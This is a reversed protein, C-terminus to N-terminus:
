VFVKKTSYLRPSRLNKTAIKTIKKTQHWRVTASGNEISLVSCSGQRRSDRRYLTLGPKPAPLLTLKFMPIKKRGSPVAGCPTDSTPTSTPGCFNRCATRFEIQNLSYQRATDAISLIQELQSSIEDSPRKENLDFVVYKLAHLDEPIKKKLGALIPPPLPVETVGMGISKWLSVKMQFAHNYDDALSLGYFKIVSTPLLNGIPDYFGSKTKM